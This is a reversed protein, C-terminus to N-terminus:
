HWVRLLIIFVVTIISLIIIATMLSMSFSDKEIIPEDSGVLILSSWYSPHSTYRDSGSIYHLKSNSLSAALGEGRKLNRYFQSQIKLTSRDNIQWLSMIVNPCGSYFFGRSINQVGEGPEIKGLGTDCASLVALQAHMNLNFLEYPYVKGDNKDDPYFLLSPQLSDSSVTGHISFHLIDFANSYQKFNTETARENFFIESQFDSAINNLEAKTNPLSNEDGPLKEYGWGGFKVVSEAYPITHTRQLFYFSNQYRIKYSNILYPLRKYNIDGLKVTDQILAEFPIFALDKDPIIIISKIDTQSSMGVLSPKILLNYFYYSFYNYRNFQEMSTPEPNELIKRIKVLNDRFTSDIELFNLFSSDSRITLTTLYDIGSNFSIITSSDKRAINVISDFNVQIPRIRLESYSRYKNEFQYNVLELRENLDKLQSEAFPNEEKEIKSQWEAIQYKLDSWQQILDPPVGASQLLEANRISKSLVRSKNQEIFQLAAQIIKKQPHLQYLLRICELGSEYFEQNQNNLWIEDSDLYNSQRLEQIISDTRIFNSLSIKLLGENSRQEALKLQLQSINRSLEFLKYSNGSYKKEIVNYSILFQQLAKEYHMNISYTDGMIERLKAEIIEGDEKEDNVIGLSKEFYIEGSAENKNLYNSKGIQALIESEFERNGFNNERLSKLSKQFHVIAKEYNRLKLYMLGLNFNSVVMLYPASNFKNELEILMEYEQISKEDKEQAYYITALLNHSYEQYLEDDLSKSTEIASLAYYEAKDLNKRQRSNNAMSYYINYLINQHTTDALKHMENLAHEYYEQGKRIDLFLYSYLKGLNMKTIVRPLSPKSYIVTQLQLAKLLYKESSDASNLYYYGTGLSFYYKSLILKSTAIFNLYSAAQKLVNVAEQNNGRTILQLAENSVASFYEPYKQEDLYKQAALDYLYAASDFNGKKYYENPKVLYTSDLSINAPPDESYITTNEPKDSNCSFVMLALLFFLQYPISGNMKCAGHSSPLYLLNGGL